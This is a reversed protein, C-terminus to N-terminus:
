VEFLHSAFVMRDKDESELTEEIANIISVVVKDYPPMLKDLRRQERIKEFRTYWEPPQGFVIPQREM